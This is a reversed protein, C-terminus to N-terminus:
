KVPDMRQAISAASYRLPSFLHCDGLARYVREEGQLLSNVLTDRLAFSGRGDALCLEVCDLAGVVVESGETM